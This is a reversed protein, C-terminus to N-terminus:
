QKKDSATSNPSVSSADTSRNLLEKEAENSSSSTTKNDLSKVPSKTNKRYLAFQGLICIDIFIQFAACLQLALPSAHAIYYSLKYLDGGLWILILMISLGSTNQRRYNLLFQPVGLVAEVGSSTYGLFAQYAHSQHLLVTFMGVTAAMLSIFLLYDSYFRWQWFKERTEKKDQNLM